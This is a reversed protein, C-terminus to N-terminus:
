IFTQHGEPIKINLNWTHLTIEPIIFVLSCIFAIGQIGYLCSRKKPVFKRRQLRILQTAAFARADPSDKV